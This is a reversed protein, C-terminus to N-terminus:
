KLLKWYEAAVCFKGFFQYKKRESVCVYTHTDPTLFTLKEPSKSNSCFVPFCQFLHSYQYLISQISLGKLRWGWLITLLTQTRKVMKRPHRKLSESDSM